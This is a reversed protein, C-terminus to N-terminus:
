GLPVIRLPWLLAECTQPVQSVITGTVVSERTAYWTAVLHKIALPIEKPIPVPMGTSPLGYGAVFEIQVANRKNWTAPWSQGDALYIRPPIDKTDVEYVSASLTQQVNDEDYYKVFTVSQVPSHLLEIPDTPFSDMWVTRTQTVISRGLFGEAWSRAAGIYGTILTDDDTGDVRLHLKAEALTVPEEAPQTTVEFKL